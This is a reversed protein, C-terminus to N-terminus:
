ANVTDEKGGKTETKRPEGKLTTSHLKVGFSQEGVGARPGQASQRLCVFNVVRRQRIRRNEKSM